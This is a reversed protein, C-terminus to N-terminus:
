FPCGPVRAWENLADLYRNFAEMYADTDVHIVDVIYDKMDPELALIEAPIKM